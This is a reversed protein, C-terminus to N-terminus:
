EEYVKQIEVALLNDETTVLEGAAFMKKNAFIRINKEANEKMQLIDGSKIKDLETLKLITKDLVFELEVPLEGWEFFEQNNDDAINKEGLIRDNVIVGTREKYIFSYIVYDQCVIRFRQYSVLVIDGPTITIMESLPLFSYGLVYKVEFILRDLWKNKQKKYVVDEISKLDWIFLECPSSVLQLLKNPVREPLWADKIVWRRENFFFDSKSSKLWHILYWLPVETWPIEPLEVDKLKIWNDIDLLVNIDNLQEDNLHICVYRTEMKTSVVKCGFFEKSLTNLHAQEKTVRRFQYKNQLSM